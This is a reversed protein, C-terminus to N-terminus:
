LDINLYLIKQTDSFKTIANNIMELLNSPLKDKKSEIILLKYGLNILFNNRRIEKQQFQELTLEGLKVSLEHGGGNYEVIIHNPLLIDIVYNDIRVNLQGQLM